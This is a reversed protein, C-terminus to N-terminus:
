APKRIIFIYCIKFCKPPVFVKAFVRKNKPLAKGVFIVFKPLLKKRRLNKEMKIKVVVEQEMRKLVTPNVNSQTFKPGIVKLKM